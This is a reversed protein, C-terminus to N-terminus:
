EAGEEAMELVMGVGSPEILRARAGEDRLRQAREQDRGDGVAVHPARRHHHRPVVPGRAIERGVQAGPQARPGYAEVGAAADGVLGVEGRGRVEHAQAHCCEVGNQVGGRAGFGGDDDHGRDRQRLLHGVGLQARVAERELDALQEVEVLGDDLEDRRAVLTDVLDLVARLEGDAAPQEVDVRRGLLAGDADLQEVDLDLRQAPERGEGLAREALPLPDLDGGGGLERGLVALQGLDRRELVGVAAGVDRLQQGDIAEALQEVQEGAVGVDHDGGVLVDLGRQAVV